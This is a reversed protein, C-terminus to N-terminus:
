LRYIARHRCAEAIHLRRRSGRRRDRDAFLGAPSEPQHRRPRGAVARPPARGAPSAGHRRREVPPRDATATTAASAAANLMSRANIPEVTDLDTLLTREQVPM